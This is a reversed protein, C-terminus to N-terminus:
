HKARPYLHIFREATAAASPYDESKYYAYILEMQSSETYDSFPYMTEIAELRKAATAYEEKKLAKQAETYLHKATMGKFPNHEEDDKNWKSCASLAIISILLLMQIRKM